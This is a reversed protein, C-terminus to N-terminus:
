QKLTLEFYMFGFLWLPPSDVDVLPAFSTYGRMLTSDHAICSYLASEVHKQVFFVLTSQMGQILAKGERFAVNWNAFMVRLSSEVRQLVSGILDSRPRRLSFFVLFGIKSLWSYIRDTGCHTLFRNETDTFGASM